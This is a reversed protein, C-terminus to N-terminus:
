RFRVFVVIGCDRGGFDKWIEERCCVCFAYDDILWNMELDNSEEELEEMM